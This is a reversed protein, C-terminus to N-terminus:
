ASPDVLADLKGSDDLLCLDEYGGIYAGAIFIQPLSRVRPLRRLLEEKHGADGVVDLDEYPWGRDELLAKARECYGCQPSSFIEIKAM